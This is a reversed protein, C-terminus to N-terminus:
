TSPRPDLRAGLLRVTEPHSPTRLVQDTRGLEVVEGARMVGVRDAVARAVDLDHTILVCAIGSRDRLTSLLALIEEAVPGDLGSTPEDAILLRPELALARAICVRRAQGGSLEHPYRDALSADLGVDALLAAPTRRAGREVGHITFPEELLQSVTLRPSLSAVAEQRVLQAFRARGRRSRPGEGGGHRIVGRDIGQLGILARALTSKGSGSEGVLALFEGPRIDLDVDRVARVREGPVGPQSHTSRFSVSVGRAEVLPAQRVDARSAPERLFRSVALDIMARTVPHAPTRAIETTPGSEVVRGAEMVVIHQSVQGVLAIDHSILLVGMGHDRSLRAFLEGVQGALSGDLASTPEDAVLAIPGPLLAMAVQVRQRMGGSLEHPYSRAVRQPQPLGVEALSDLIRAREQGRSLGGPLRHAQLVDRLQAEIRMTPNLSALPDQFVAALKRGRIARWARRDLPPLTTGIMVEGGLRVANRPLLGLAALALTSKGSGSAGVVGLVEGRRLEFSADQVASAVGSGTRYGIALNRVTIATAEAAVSSPDAPITM